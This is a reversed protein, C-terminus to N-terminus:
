AAIQPAEELKADAWKILRVLEAEDRLIIGTREQARMLAGGWVYVSNWAERKNGGFAADLSSCFAEYAVALRRAEDKSVNM